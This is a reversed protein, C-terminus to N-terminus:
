LQRLDGKGFHNAIGEIVKRSLEANSVEKPGELTLRAVWWTRKSQLHYLVASVSLVKKKVNKYPNKSSILALVPDFESTVKENYSYNVFILAEFNMIKSLDNFYDQTEATFNPTNGAVTVFTNLDAIYNQYGRGLNADNTKNLVDIPSYIKWAKQVKSIETGISNNLLDTLEPIENSSCNVPLIAAAKVKSFDLNPSRYSYDPKYIVEVTETSSSCSIFTFLLIITISFHFFHILTLKVSKM